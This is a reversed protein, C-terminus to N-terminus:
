DFAALVACLTAAGCGGVRPSLRSGEAAAAGAYAGIRLSCVALGGDLGGAADLGTEGVGATEFGAGVAFASVFLASPGAAAGDMAPLAGVLGEVAAVLESFGTVLAFGSAESM